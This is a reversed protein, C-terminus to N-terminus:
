RIRSYPMPRLLQSEVRDVLPAWRERLLKRLPEDTDQAERWRQWAALDPFRRLEISRHSGANM